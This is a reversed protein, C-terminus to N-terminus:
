KELVMMVIDAVCVMWISLIEVARMADPPMADRERKSIGRRFDCGADRESGMIRQSKERPEWM